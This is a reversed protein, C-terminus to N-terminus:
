MWCILKKKRELTEHVADILFGNQDYILTQILSKKNFLYRIITDMTSALSITLLIATDM